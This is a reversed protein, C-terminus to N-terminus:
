AAPPPSPPSCRRRRTAASSTRTSPCALRRRHRRRGPGVGPRRAPVVMTRIAIATDINGSFDLYGVVGPTRARAQDARARRHDGDGAGEARGVRHRGAAHGAARRDPGLGDACRRGVGAVHPADRPQLARADDDRRGARHRLRVVRGVDNRALDVLMIHEALEKPHEICSPRRAPPRGRRHPGRYRTGAIPRSIVRGDLLQVMPEPSSGSWRSARAPPRLVHVPEPEGPAAGPLRRVPRRRPRPRLAAGARGPLHRRRPHAGHGVEVARRTRTARGDDLAVDPLPDDPDPPTSWRSTSRAPATPPSSRRAPRRADDYARTSRRRRDAGPPVFVNAILTVRQRWHDFAALEGIVSLVADPLGLDDAPVDPLHEVERVVDYGLYGVLGGHLPPLDPLAPSRYAALLAEVAALVGQDLPIGAPLPATSRSRAAGRAVLTAAPRRGVFSWRGWREGHEVSELLFGPEDGACGPSRPSRRSSTPWCSAGCRSSRTTAARARPVRGPHASTLWPRGGGFPASSAPTRRRHPLRGQGGARRRVAAHRRRLRLLAQASSSATARRTARAGCRRAPGAWFM